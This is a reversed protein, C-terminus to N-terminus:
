PIWTLEPNDTRGKNEEFNWYADSRFRRVHGDLFLFHAGRGHLNTHVFNPTGVAPLNKSDFLWVLSEPRSIMGLRVPRNEVGTGNVYENLCYHFLNNGNSRRTNEPCIWVSREPEITANTRWPMQHYRPLGMVQPLQIYWGSNTSSDSPNPAGEPPLFDNCEVAYLHTAVGWQRLNSLCFASKAKTRARHLAPLLLAALIAILAIAVLLEILTFARGKKM